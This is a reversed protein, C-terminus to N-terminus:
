ATQHSTAGPRPHRPVPKQMLSRGGSLGLRQYFGRNEANAGGLFLVRANRDAAMGFM